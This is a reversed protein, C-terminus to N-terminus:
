DRPVSESPTITLEHREGRRLVVVLAQEGIYRDTLIRHLDDVNAVPQGAFAIVIDGEQLGANAAPSEKEVHVVMLASESELSHLRIIRRNLRVHQGGVGLYARRV